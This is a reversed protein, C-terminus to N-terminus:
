TDFLLEHCRIREDRREDSWVEGENVQTVVDVDACVSTSEVTSLVLSEVHDGVCGFPPIEAPVLHLVVDVGVNLCHEFTSSVLFLTVVEAVRLARNLHENGKNFVLRTQQRLQVADNVHRWASDITRDCLRVETIISDSPNATYRAQADVTHGAIVPGVVLLGDAVVEASVHTGLVVLPGGPLEPSNRRTRKVM